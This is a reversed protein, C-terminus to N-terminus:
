TRFAVTSSEAVAVTVTSSDGHSSVAVSPVHFIRALAVHADPALQGDDEFREAEARVRGFRVGGVRRNFFRVYLRRHAAHEAAALRARGGVM